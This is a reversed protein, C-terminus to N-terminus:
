REILRYGRACTRKEPRGEVRMDDDDGGNGGSIRVPVRRHGTYRVTEERPCDRGQKSDGSDNYNMIMVM